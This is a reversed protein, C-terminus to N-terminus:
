IWDLFSPWFSPGAGRGNWVRMNEGTKIYIFSVQCVLLRFALFGVDNERERERMRDWNCVLCVWRWVWVGLVNFVIKEEKYNINREREKSWDRELIMVTLRTNSSLGSRALSSLMVWISVFYKPCIWLVWFLYLLFERLIQRDGEFLFGLYLRAFSMLTFDFFNLGCVLEWLWDGM